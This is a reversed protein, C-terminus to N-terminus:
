APITARCFITSRQECHLIFPQFGNLKENVGQQRDHNPKKAFKEWLQRITQLYLECITPQFPYRRM